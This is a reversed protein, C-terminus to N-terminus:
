PREGEVSVAVVDLGLDVKGLHIQFHVIGLSGTRQQFRNQGFAVGILLMGGLRYERSHGSPRRSAPRHSSCGVRGDSPVACWPRRRPDPIERMLGERFSGPPITRVDRASTFRNPHSTDM